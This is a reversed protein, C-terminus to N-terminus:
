RLSDVLASAVVGILADAPPQRYGFKHTRVFVAVAFQGGDPFEVVGIENRVIGITGTKGSIRIDDAPFGSSLRHPWVQLGLIRRAEACGAPSAAQDTWLKGLLETSESPTSRNTRQPDCVRLKRVLDSDASMMAEIEADDATGLDLAMSEFLTNCDGELVTGPLGLERMSANVRDIGVLGALIDTAANDSVTIMSTAIDRVSWDADDTFVSLGTPGQTRNADTVQIRSTPDIVGADVQRLYEVLVPVKFVSATVVSADADWGLQAGTRLNRAHAFLEAGAAAAASAIRDDLEALGTTPNM